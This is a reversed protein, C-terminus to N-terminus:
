KLAFIPLVTSTLQLLLFLVLVLYLFGVLFRVLVIDEMEKPALHAHATTSAQNTQVCGTCRTVTMCLKQASM